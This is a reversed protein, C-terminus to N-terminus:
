KQYYFEPNFRSNYEVVTEFIQLFNRANMLATEDDHIIGAEYVQNDRIGNKVNHIIMDKNQILKGVQDFDRVVGKSYYALHSDFESVILNHCVLGAYHGIGNDREFKQKETLAPKSSGLVIELLKKLM